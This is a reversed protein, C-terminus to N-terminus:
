RGLALRDALHRQLGAEAIRKQTDEVDYPVRKFTITRKGLDLIAYAADPNGDRPQGVGGPNILYPVMPKLELTQDPEIERIVKGDGVVLPVHTHGFLCLYIGADEARLHRYNAIALEVSIIYEDRDRPSGHVLLIRSDVLRTDELSELFAVDDPALVQRTYRIAEATAPRILDTEEGLTYRDHNGRIAELPRGRLERIVEAPSPGYGVFDGMSLLAKVGQRDIDELVARVAALNAHLDTLIAYRSDSSGM